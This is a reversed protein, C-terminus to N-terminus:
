VERHLSEIAQCFSNLAFLITEDSTTDLLVRNVTDIGHFIGRNPRYILFIQEKDDSEDFVVAGLKQGKRQIRFSVDTLPVWKLGTTVLPIQEKVKNLHSM